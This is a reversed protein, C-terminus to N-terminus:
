IVVPAAASPGGSSPRNYLAYSRGLMNFTNTREEDVQAGAEGALAQLVGFREVLADHAKEISQPDTRVHEPPFVQAHVWGMQANLLAAQRDFAQEALEYPTLPSQQPEADFM